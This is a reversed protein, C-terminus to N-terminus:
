IIDNMLWCVFLVGNLGGSVIYRRGDEYLWLVNWYFAWSGCGICDLCHYGAVSLVFSLTTHVHIHM